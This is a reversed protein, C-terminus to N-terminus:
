AGRLREAHHAALARRISLGKAPSGALCIVLWHGAADALMLTLGSGDHGETRQERAWVACAAAAGPGPPVPGPLAWDPLQDQGYITPSSPTVLFM